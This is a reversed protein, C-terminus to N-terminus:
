QSLQRTLSWLLFGCLSTSRRFNEVLLWAERLEWCALLLGPGGATSHSGPGGHQPQGLCGSWVPSVLPLKPTNEILRCIQGVWRRQWLLLFCVFDVGLMHEWNCHLLETMWSMLSSFALCIQGGLVNERRRCFSGHNGSSPRHCAVPKTHLIM